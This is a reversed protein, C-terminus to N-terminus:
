CVKGGLKSEREQNSCSFLTYIFDMFSCRFISSVSNEKRKRKEEGRKQYCPILAMMLSPILERTSERHLAKISRFDKRKEEISQKSEIIL